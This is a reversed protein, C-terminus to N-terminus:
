QRERATRRRREEEHKRACASTAFYGYTASIGYFGAFIFSIVGLGASMAPGYNLGDKGANSSSASALALGGVGLFAVTFLTDAIPATQSETCKTERQELSSSETGNPAKSRPTESTTEQPVGPRDDERESLHTWAKPPPTVAVFSCGATASALCMVGFAGCGGAVLLRGVIRTEWARRTVVM